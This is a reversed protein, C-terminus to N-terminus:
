VEPSCPKLPIIFMRPNAHRNIMIMAVILKRFKVRASLGIRMRLRLVRSTSPASRRVMRRFNTMSHTMM